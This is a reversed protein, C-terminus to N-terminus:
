YQRAEYAEGGEIEHLRDRLVLALPILLVAQLAALVLLLASVWGGPFLASRLWLLVGACALQWLGSLADSLVAQCRQRREISAPM